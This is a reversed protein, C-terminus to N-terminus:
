EGIGLSWRNLAGNFNPVSFYIEAWVKYHIYNSLWVPISNLSLKTGSYETSNPLIADITNIVYSLYNKHELRKRLKSFDHFIFNM